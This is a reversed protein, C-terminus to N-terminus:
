SPMKSFLGFRGLCGEHGHVGGLYAGTYLEGNDRKYVRKSQAIFAEKMAGGCEECNGLQDGPRRAPRLTMIITGTFTGL